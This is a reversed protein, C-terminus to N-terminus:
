GIFVRNIIIDVLVRCPKLLHQPKGLAGALHRHDDFTGLDLDAVSAASPYLKSTTVPLLM